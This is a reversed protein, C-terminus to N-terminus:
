PLMGFCLCKLLKNRCDCMLAIHLVYLCQSLICQWCSQIYCFYPWVSCFCCWQASFSHFEQGKCVQLGGSWRQIGYTNWVTEKGSSSQNKFMKLQNFLQHLIIVNCLPLRKMHVCNCTSCVGWRCRAWMGAKWVSQFNVILVTIASSCICQAWIMRISELTWVTVGM